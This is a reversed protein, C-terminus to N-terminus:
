DKCSSGEARGDEKEKLKNLLSEYMETGIIREWWARKEEKTICTGDIPSKMTDLCEHSYRNLRVINEPDYVLKPYPGVGFVHAPDFRSLMFGANRQLVLFERATLVKVLRCCTDRAFVLKKVEQWQEDNSDRRM